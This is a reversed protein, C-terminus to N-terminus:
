ERPGMYIESWRPGDFGGEYSADVFVQALLQTGDSLTIGKIKHDYIQVGNKERLRAQKIYTVKTESLMERFVQEAVHPEFYWEISENYHQGVREFFERSIGGIVEAKGKDSSSLGGSTMGGLHQDAGVLAVKMGQGQLRSRAPSAAQPQAMCSSMSNRAEGWSQLSACLIAATGAVYKIWSMRMESENILSRAATFLSEYGLCSVAGGRTLDLYLHGAVAVHTPQRAKAARDFRSKQAYSM